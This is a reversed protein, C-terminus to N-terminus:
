VTRAGSMAVGTVGDAVGVCLALTSVGDAVCLVSADVSGEAVIAVVAVSADVAVPEGDGVADPDADVEGVSLGDGVAEALSVM